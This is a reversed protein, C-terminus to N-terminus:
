GRHQEQPPEGDPQVEAECGAVGVLGDGPNPGDVPNGPEAEVAPEHSLNWKSLVKVKVTRSIEYKIIGNSLQERYKPNTSVGIRRNRWM